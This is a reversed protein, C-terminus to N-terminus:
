GRNNSGDYLCMELLRAGAVIPLRALSGALQAVVGLTGVVPLNIMLHHMPRGGPSDGLHTKRHVMDVVKRLVSLFHLRGPQV